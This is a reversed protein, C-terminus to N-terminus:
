KHGKYKLKEPKYGDGYPNELHEDIDEALAIVEPKPMKIEKEMGKYLAIRMGLTEEGSFVIKTLRNIEELVERTNKITDKYTKSDANKASNIFESGFVKWNIHLAVLEPIGFSRLYQYSILNFNENEGVMLDEYKGQFKDQTVPFKAIEACRIRREIVDPYRKILPSKYDYFLILYIVAKTKDVGFDLTGYEEELDIITKPDFPDYRLKSTDIDEKKM